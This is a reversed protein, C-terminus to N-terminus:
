EAGKLAEIAGAVAELTWADMQEDGHLNRVADEVSELAALRANRATRVAIGTNHKGARIDAATLPCGLEDMLAAAAERDVQTPTQTM